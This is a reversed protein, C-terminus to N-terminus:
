ANIVSEIRDGFLSAARPGEKSQTREFVKHRKEVPLAYIVNDYLTGIVKQASVAVDFFLSNKYRGSLVPAIASAYRHLQGIYLTMTGKMSAPKIEQLTKQLERQLDELNSITLKMVDDAM